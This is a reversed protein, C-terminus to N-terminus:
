DLIAMGLNQVFTDLTIDAVTAFDRQSMLNGNFDDPNFLQKLHHPFRLTAQTTRLQIRGWGM